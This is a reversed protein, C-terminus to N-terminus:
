ERRIDLDDVQFKNLNVGLLGRRVNLNKLDDLCSEIGHYYVECEFPFDEGTDHSLSKPAGEDVQTSISKLRLQPYM